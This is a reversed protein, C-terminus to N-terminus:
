QSHLIKKIHYIIHEARVAFRCEWERDTGHFVCKKIWYQRYKGQMCFYGCPSCQPYTYERLNFSHINDVPAQIIFSTSNLVSINKKNVLHGLRMMWGDMSINLVADSLLSSVELFTTKWLLNIVDFKALDIDNNIWKERDGWILLVVFWADNIFTIVKVLEDPVICRCCLWVFLTVFWKDGIHYSSKYEDSYELRLQKKYFFLSDIQHNVMGEIITSYTGNDKVNLHPFAFNYKKAFLKWLLSSFFTNVPTFAEDFKLFNKFLFGLLRFKNHPIWLIEDYLNNKKYINIIEDVNYFLVFYSPEYYLFTIHYWQERLELLKPIIMLRDWLGSAAWIFLIKKQKM